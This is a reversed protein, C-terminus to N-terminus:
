SVEGSLAQLAEAADESDFIASGSVLKNAGAAILRPATDQNVGIDVAITLEPFTSRLDRVKEFVSADLAISHRGITDNGMCQVFDISPIFRRIVDNPTSPKLALGIGRGSAKVRSIIKELNETSEVHIILHSFGAAIWSDLLVEPARVMLDVEYHVVDLHPLTREGSVLSEFVSDNEETFPWTTAPAYAGDVVDIQVLPAHGLVRAVKQEIMEFSTPLIAPVIQIM